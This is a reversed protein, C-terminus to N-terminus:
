LTAYTPVTEVVLSSGPVASLLSSFRVIAPFTVSSLGMVMLPLRLILLPVKVAPVFSIEISPAVKATFPPENLTADVLVTANELTPVVVNDPEVMLSECNPFRVIAVPVVTTAGFALMPTDPRHFLVPDNVGPVPVTM